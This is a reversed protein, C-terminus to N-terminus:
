LIQANMFQELEKVKPNNEGYLETYIEKAKSMNERYQRKDAIACSARGLGEYNVATLVNSEGYIRLRLELARRLFPIANM